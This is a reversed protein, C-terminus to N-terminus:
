KAEIYGALILVGLLATMSGLGLFILPFMWFYSFSACSAFTPNDRDYIIDVGKDARIEAGSLTVRHTTGALDEFEVVPRSEEGSDEYHVVKGRTRIGNSNLALTKILFMAGILAFMLGGCFPFLGFLEKM